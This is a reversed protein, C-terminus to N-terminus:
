YNSVAMSFRGALLNAIGVVIIVVSSFGGGVARSAVPSADDRM